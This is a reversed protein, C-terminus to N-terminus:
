NYADDSAGEEVRSAEDCGVWRGVLMERGKEASEAGAGGSGAPLESGPLVSISGGLAISMGWSKSFPERVYLV